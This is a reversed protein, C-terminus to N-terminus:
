AYINFVITLPCNVLEQITTECKFDIKENRLIKFNNCCCQHICNNATVYTMCHDM